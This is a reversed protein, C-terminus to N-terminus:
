KFNIIVVKAFDKVNDIIKKVEMINKVQNCHFSFNLKYFNISSMCKGKKLNYLVCIYDIYIHKSIRVINWLCKPLFIEM